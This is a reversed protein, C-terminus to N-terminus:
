VSQPPSKVLQTLFAELAAWYEEHNAISPMLTRAGHIGEEKPTFLTKDTSAVADFIPKMEPIETMSGTMFVPQDVRKAADAAFTPSFEVFYEGPSFAVVALVKNNKGSVRLALSASYSSGLLIVPRGYLRNAFEVATAVDKEAALYDTEFGLNQAEVATQNNGGLRNSGARQDIALCNYGLENLKPAINNYEDKSSGAQHCLVITPADPSVHYLYAYITVSDSSPFKLENKGVKYASASRESPQPENTSPLETTKNKCAGLTGILLAILLPYRFSPINM